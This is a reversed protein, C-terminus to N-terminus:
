KSAPLEKNKVGWNYIVTVGAWYYGMCLLSSAGVLWGELVATSVTSREASSWHSSSFFQVTLHLFAYSTTLTFFIFLPLNHSLNLFFSALKSALHIKKCNWQADSTRNYFNAMHLQISPPSNLNLLWIALPPNHAPSLRKIPCAEWRLCIKRWEEFFWFSLWVPWNSCPLFKPEKEYKTLPLWWKFFFLIKHFVKVFLHAGGGRRPNTFDKNLNKEGM